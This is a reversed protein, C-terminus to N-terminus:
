FNVWTTGNYYSMQNLDTDYVQLGAAPSVIANKQTTTLRPFLVGKTTSTIQLVASDDGLEADLGIGVSLDDRVAFQIDQASNKVILSHTANTSTEGRIELKGAATLNYENGSSANSFGIGVRGDNLITIDQLKSSRPGNVEDNPNLNNLYVSMKPARGSYRGTSITAYTLQLGNLIDGRTFSVHGREWTTSTRNSVWSNIFGGGSSALILRSDTGASDQVIVPNGTALLANDKLKLGGSNNNVYDVIQNLHGFRAPTLDSDVRLNEDPSSPIFKELAMIASKVTTYV